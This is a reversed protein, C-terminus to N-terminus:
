NFKENLFLYLTFSRRTLIGCIASSYSYYATSSCSCGGIDCRLGKSSDCQNSDTCPSTYGLLTDVYLM